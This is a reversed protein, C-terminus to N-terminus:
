RLTKILRVEDEYKGLRRLYEEKTIHGNRYLDELWNETIVLYPEDSVKFFDRYRGLDNLTLGSFDRAQIKTMNFIDENIIITPSVQYTRGKKSIDVPTYIYYDKKEFRVAKVQDRFPAINIFNDIYSKRIRRIPALGFEFFSGKLEKDADFLGRDYNFWVPSSSIIRNVLPGNFTDVYAQRFEKLKESNMTIEYIEFTKSSFDKGLNKTLSPTFEKIKEEKM